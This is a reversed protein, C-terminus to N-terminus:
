RLRKNDPLLLLLDFCCVSTLKNSDESGVACTCETIGHEPKVPDGDSFGHLVSGCVGM